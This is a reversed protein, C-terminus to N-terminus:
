AAHGRDPCRCADVIRCPQFTSGINKHGSAPFRAEFDSSGRWTDLATSFVASPAERYVARFYDRFGHWCVAHVKRGSPSERQYKANGNGVHFTTDNDPYLKVRHRKTSLSTIDARVGTLQAAHELTEHTVHSAIM